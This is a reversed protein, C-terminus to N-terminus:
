VQVIATGDGFEKNMMEIWAKRAKATKFRRDGQTLKMPVSYEEIKHGTQCDTSEFTCSTQIDRTLTAIYQKM